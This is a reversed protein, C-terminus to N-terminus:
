PRRAQDRVLAAEAPATAPTASGRRGPRSPAPARSMAWSASPTAPCRPTTMQTFRVRRRSGCSASVSEVALPGEISVLWRRRVIRPRCFSTGRATTRVLLGLWFADRAGAGTLFDRRNLGLLM